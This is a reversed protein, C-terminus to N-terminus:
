RKSWSGKLTKLNINTLNIWRKCAADNSEKAKKLNNFIAETTIKQPDGRLVTYRNLWDANILPIDFTNKEECKVSELSMELNVLGSVLAPDHDRPWFAQITAIAACGSLTTSLILAALLKKM